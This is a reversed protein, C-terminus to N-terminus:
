CQNVVRGTLRVRSSNIVCKILLLIRAIAALRFAL